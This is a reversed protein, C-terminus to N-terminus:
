SGKRILPAARVSPHVRALVMEPYGNMPDGGSAAISDVRTPGRNYAVLALELNGDFRRVLDRLYRFGVRLNTAPDRLDRATPDTLYERAAVLRVQTFGIANRSSEAARRFNSEVKILEYALDPEIGEDVAVDYIVASLGAGIGYRGAYTLIRAARDLRARTDELDEPPAAGGLAGIMAADPVPEVPAHGLQGALAIAAAVPLCLVLLVALETLVVRLWGPRGPGVHVRIM